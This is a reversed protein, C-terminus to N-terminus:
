TDVTTAHPAGLSAPEARSKNCRERRLIALVAKASLWFGRPSYCLGAIPFAAGLRGQPRAGAAGDAAAATSGPVLKKTM